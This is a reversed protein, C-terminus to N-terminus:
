TALFGHVTRCAQKMSQEQHKQPADFYWDHFSM